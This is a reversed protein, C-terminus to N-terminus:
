SGSIIAAIKNVIQNNDYCFSALNNKIAELKKPDSILDELVIHMKDISTYIGTENNEIFEPSSGFDSCVVPTGLIKAENIVYPCAESVSTNVLLDSKKIYPYPNTKEGLVKIENDLGLEAIKQILKKYVYEETVPGIIYWTFLLGGDKLKKAIDPIVTQNKIHDIRGITVIKFGEWDIFCQDNVERESLEKMMEVDMTNYIAVTKEKFEPFVDNFSRNTYESVNVIHAFTQYISEESRLDKSSVKLYSQYDCHIWAIKNNHKVTSVFLTPLGESFAIVSDYGKKEIKKATRLFIFKMLNGRLLRNLTKVLAVIYKKLGKEKKYKAYNLSAILGASYVTADEFTGKYQGNNNIALIDIAYDQEEKRLFSLLNQLSRNIGGCGFSTIVFLIKIKAM